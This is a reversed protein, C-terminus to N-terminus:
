GRAEELAAGLRDALERIEEAMIVLPPALRVVQGAAVMGVLLGHRRAVAPLDPLPDGNLELGRLLGRGRLRRAPRGAGILPDLACEIELGMSRVHDILGGDTLRRVVVNAAACAM